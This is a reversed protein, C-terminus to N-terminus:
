SMTASRAVLNSLPICFNPLKVNNITSWFAYFMFKVALNATQNINQELLNYLEENIEETKENTSAHVNIL